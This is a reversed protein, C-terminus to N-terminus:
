ESRDGDASHRRNPLHSGICFVISTSPVGSWTLPQRVLQISGGPVLGAAFILHQTCLLLGHIKVHRVDGARFIQLLDDVRSTVTDSTACTMRTLTSRASTKRPRHFVDPQGCPYDTFEIAGLYGAARVPLGRTEARQRRWRPEPLFKGEM